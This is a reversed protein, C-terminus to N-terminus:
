PKTEVFNKVLSISPNYPIYDAQMICPIEWPLITLIKQTQMVTGKLFYRNHLLIGSIFNILSSIQNLIVELIVSSLILGPM